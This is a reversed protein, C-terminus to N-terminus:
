PASCSVPLFQLTAAPYRTGELVEPVLDSGARKAVWEWVLSGDPAVEIIRGPNAETLLRNGNALLQHKGGSLTYFPTDAEVPYVTALSNDAPNVGLLRSAGYYSGEQTTDDQNDFIVIRGDSEFDPDHQHVLPHRLHWKVKHTEGDLVVVLSLHRMSVMIDGANFLPFAPAISTSLTEVDNIHTLDWQAAIDAFVSQYGSKYLADIIFIEDLIEGDPSVRLVTEDVFPPKMHVYGPVKAERWNLGAVWFDGNEDRHVSHHTRYPLKWVPTGCADLRFLGLYEINLILNGDPLLWTGHVYNEPNNYKGKIFDNYPSEPWLEHPNIAWEHLTEGKSDLLRVAPRLQGDREWYSTVLTVGPQMRDAAHVTTGAPYRAPYLFHKSTAKGVERNSLLQGVAKFPEEIYSYPFVRFTGVAAGYLFALFAIAAVFLTFPLWDKM